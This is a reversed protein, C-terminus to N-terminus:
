YGFRSACRQRITRSQRQLENLYPPRSLQWSKNLGLDYGFLYYPRCVACTDKWHKNVHCYGCYWCRGTLWWRFQKFFRRRNWKSKLTYSLFKLGRHPWTNRSRHLLDSKMQREGNIEYASSGSSKRAVISLQWMFWAM